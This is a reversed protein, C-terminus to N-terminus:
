NSVLNSSVPVNIIHQEKCLLRSGVKIIFMSVACHNEEKEAEDDDEDEEQDPAEWRTELNMLVAVVQERPFVKISDVTLYKKAGKTLQPDLPM